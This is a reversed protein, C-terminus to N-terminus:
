WFYKGWMEPNAWFRPNNWEREHNYTAIDYSYLTLTRAADSLQADQRFGLALFDDLSWGQSSMGHDIFVLLRSAHLNRLRALVAHGQAKPLHELFDAILVCDYRQEGDIDTIDAVDSRVTLQLANSKSRNKSNNDADSSAAGDRSSGAFAADDLALAPRASLYLLSAPRLEALRANLAEIPTM